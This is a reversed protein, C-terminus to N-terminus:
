RERVSNFALCFEEFGEYELKNVRKRSGSKRVSKKWNVVENEKNEELPKRKGRVSKPPKKHQRYTLASQGNKEPRAAVILSGRDPKQYLRKWPHEKSNKSNSLENLSDFNKFLKKLQKKSPKRSRSNYQSRSKPRLIGSSDSKKFVVKGRRKNYVDKEIEEFDDKYPDLSFKSDEKFYNSSERLSRRNRTTKPIRNRKSKDNYIKSNSRARSTYSKEKECMNLSKQNLRPKFTFSCDRKKIDRQNKSKRRRFSKQREEFNMKIVTKSYENIKPKYFGQDEEFQQEIKRAQEEYIKAHKKELMKKGQKYLDRSKANGIEEELGIKKKSKRRKHKRLSKNERFKEIKKKNEREKNIKEEKRKIENEYRKHIPKLNKRSTIERSHNTLAPTFPCNVHLSMQHTEKLRERTKFKHILQNEIKQLFEKSIKAKKKQNKDISFKILIIGQHISMLKKREKIYKDLEKKMNQSDQKFKTLEKEM